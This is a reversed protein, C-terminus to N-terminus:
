RATRRPMVQSEYVTVTVCFSRMAHFITDVLAVPLGVVVVDVVAALWSKIKEREREVTERSNTFKKNPKKIKGLKVSKKTRETRENKNFCSRIKM